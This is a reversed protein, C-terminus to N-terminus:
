IAQFLHLKLIGEDLRESALEDLVAQRKAKSGGTGTVGMRNKREMKRRLQQSAGQAGLPVPVEPEM